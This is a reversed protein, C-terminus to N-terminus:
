PTAMPLIRVFGLEDPPMVDVFVDEAYRIEEIMPSSNEQPFFQYRYPEGIEFGTVRIKGKWVAEIQFEYGRRNRYAAPQDIYTGTVPDALDPIKITKVYHFAFFRPHQDGTSPQDCPMEWWPGWPAKRCGQEDAHRWYFNLPSLATGYQLQFWTYTSPHTNEGVCWNCTELVDANFFAPVSRNTIFNGTEDREVVLNHDPGQTIPLSFAALRIDVEDKWQQFTHENTFTEVVADAVEVPTDLPGIGGPGVALSSWGKLTLVNGTLPQAPQEIWYFGDFYDAAGASPATEAYGNAFPKEADPTQKEYTPYFNLSSPDHNMGTAAMIPDTGVRFANYPVSDMQFLMVRGISPQPQTVANVTRISAGSATGFRTPKFSMACDSYVRAVGDEDAGARFGLFWGGAAVQQFRLHEIPPANYPQRVAEATEDTDCPLCCDYCEGSVITYQPTSM